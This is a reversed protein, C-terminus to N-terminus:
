KKKLLDHYNVEFQRKGTAQCCSNENITEMSLPVFHGLVCGIEKTM